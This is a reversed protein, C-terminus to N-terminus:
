RHDAKHGSTLCWCATVGAGERVVRHRRQLGLLAPMLTALPLGTAEALATERAPGIAWLAKLVAIAADSGPQDPATIDRDDLADLLQDRKM